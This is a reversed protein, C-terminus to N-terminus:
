SFFFSCVYTPLRLVEFFTICPLVVPSSIVLYVVLHHMNAHRYRPALIDSGQLLGTLHFCSTADLRDIKEHTCVVDDKISQSADALFLMDGNGWLFEAGVFEGWGM